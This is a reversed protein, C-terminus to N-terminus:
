FGEIKDEQVVATVKLSPEGRSPVIIVNNSGFKEKLNSYMHYATENDIKHVDYEVILKEGKQLVISQLASQSADKGVDPLISIDRSIFVVATIGCVTCVVVARGEGDAGTISYEHETVDCYQNM